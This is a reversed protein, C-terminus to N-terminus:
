AEVSSLPFAQADGIPSAVFVKGLYFLARVSREIDASETVPSAQLNVVLAPVDDFVEGAFLLLGGHGDLVEIFYIEAIAVDIELTDAIEYAPTGVFSACDPWQVIDVENEFVVAGEVNGALLAQLFYGTVLENRDWASRFRNRWVSTSKAGGIPVVGSLDKEIVKM